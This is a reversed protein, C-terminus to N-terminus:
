KQHKFLSDMYENTGVAIGRMNELGNEVVMTWDMDMAALSIIILPHVTQGEDFKLKEYQILSGELLKMLAEEATMYKTIHDYFGKVTIKDEM